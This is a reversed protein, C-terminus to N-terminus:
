YSLLTILNLIMTQGYCTDLNLIMAQKVVEVMTYNKKSMIMHEVSVSGSIKM